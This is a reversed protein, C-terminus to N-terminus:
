QPKVQKLQEAIQRRQIILGPQKDITALIRQSEDNNGLSKLVQAIYYGTQPSVSTKSAIESFLRHAIDVSGLKYQIWAATAVTAESNPYRRLNTESIQQARARKGEDSSEVLVLALQDSIELDEPNKQHLSALVREAEENKGMCRAIISTVLKADRDDQFPQPLRVALKEADTLRDNLILWRMYSSWNKATADDAKIGARYWEECANDGPYKTTLYEAIFLEPQPLHSGKNKAELFLSRAEKHDGRNLKVLGLYWIPTFDGPVVKAWEQFNSEAEDWEKREAAVQGRLSVFAVQLETLLAPKGSQIREVEKVYLWADTLRASRLAVDGLMLYSQVNEPQEIVVSDLTSIAQQAAGAELYLQGLMIKPSPLDKFKQTAEDLLKEANNVDGRRFAEVAKKVDDNQFAKALWTMKNFSTDSSQGVAPHQAALLSKGYSWGSLSFLVIGVAKFVSSMGFVM